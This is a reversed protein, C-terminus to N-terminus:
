KGRQFTKFMLGALASTLSGLPISLVFHFTTKKKKFPALSVCPFISLIVKIRWKAKIRWEPPSILALCVPAHHCKGLNKRQKWSDFYLM